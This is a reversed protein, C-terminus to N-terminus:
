WWLWGVDHQRHPSFNAMCDADNILSRRIEAQVWKRHKREYLNRFWRPISACHYRKKDTFASYFRRALSQFDFNAYLSPSTNPYREDLLRSYAVDEDIAGCTLGTYESIERFRRGKRNRFTRSM